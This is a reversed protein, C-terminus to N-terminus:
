QAGGRWVTLDITVYETTYDKVTILGIDGATTTLCIESGPPAEEEIVLVDTYRTVSRCTDLSGTEDQRLLALTNDGSTLLRPELIFDSGSYGLDGEYGPGAEARVPRPPDEWLSIVYYDSISLDEYTVPEPEAPPESTTESPTTETEEEDPTTEQ